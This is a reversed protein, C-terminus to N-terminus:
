LFFVLFWRLNLLLIIFPFVLNNSDKQMKAIKYFIVFFVFFFVFFLFSCSFTMIFKLMRLLLFFSFYVCKAFNVRKDLRFGFLFCL